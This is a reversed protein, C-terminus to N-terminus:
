SFVLSRKEFYYSVFDGLLLLMIVKNFNAIILILLIIHVLGNPM